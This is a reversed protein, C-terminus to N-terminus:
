LEFLHVARASSQRGRQRRLSESFSEGNVYEMAIYCPQEDPASTAHVKVIRPDGIANAIREEFLFRARVQRAIAPDLESRLVKLAVQADTEPDRALYVEAFAGHGLRREIRYPGVQAPLAADAVRGGTISRTDPLDAM